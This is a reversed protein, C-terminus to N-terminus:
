TRVVPGGDLHNEIKIKNKKDSAVGLIFYTKGVAKFKFAIPM